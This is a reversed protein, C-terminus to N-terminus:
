AADIGCFGIDKLMVLELKEATELASCLFKFDFM